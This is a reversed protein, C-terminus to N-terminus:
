CVSTIKQAPRQKGRTYTNTHARTYTHIGTKKLTPPNRSQQVMCGQMNASCKVMKTTIICKRGFSNHYTHHILNSSGILDVARCVCRQAATALFLHQVKPVSTVLTWQFTYKQALFSGSNWTMPKSGYQKVRINNIM